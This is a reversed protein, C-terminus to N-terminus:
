SEAEDREKLTADPYAECLTEMHAGSYRHGPELHNNVAKNEIDNM